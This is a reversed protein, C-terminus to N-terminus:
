DFVGRYPELDANAPELPNSVAPLPLNGVYPWEWSLSLLTHPRVLGTAMPELPKGLGEEPRAGRARLLPLGPPFGRTQGASGLLLCAMARAGAPKAGEGSM